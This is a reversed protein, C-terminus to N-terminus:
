PLEMHEKIVLVTQRGALLLCPEWFLFVAFCGGHLCLPTVHGCWCVNEVMHLCIKRQLFNLRCWNKPRRPYSWRLFLSCGSCCACRSSVSAGREWLQLGLGVICCVKVLTVAQECVWFVLNLVLTFVDTPSTCGSSTLGGICCLVFIQFSSSM